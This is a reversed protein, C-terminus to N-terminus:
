SEKAPPSVFQSNSSITKCNLRGMTKSLPNLKFRSKWSTGTGPVIKPVNVNFIKSFDAIM